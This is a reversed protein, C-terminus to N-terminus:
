FRRAAAIEDVVTGLGQSSAERYVSLAAVLDQAATGVSKFLTVQGDNTRGSGESACVASLSTARDWGPQEARLARVDGSEGTMQDIDADLVVVDSRLFCRPDIERLSTTTSGISVIHQGAEIWEGCYAVPGNDGTNTAVLVMDTGAVAEEPSSVARVPFGLRASMREAFGERRAQSRSFVTAERLSRVAAMAELNTEAELGSGIVGITAANERALWRTAVGSTAGTRAATLYAADLLCLLEGNELSCLAILYRVGSAMSGNFFKLGYIGTEPLLAPMVRFFIDGHFLNVRDALMAGKGKFERRFSDDLALILQDIRSVARVEDDTLLVTM